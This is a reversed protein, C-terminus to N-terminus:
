VACVSDTAYVLTHHKERECLGYTISQEQGGLLVYIHQKVALLAAEVRCGRLCGQQKGERRKEDRREDRM